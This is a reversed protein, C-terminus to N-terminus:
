LIMERKGEVVEENILNVGRKTLHQHTKCVEKAIKARGKARRGLRSGLQGLPLVPVALLLSKESNRTLPSTSKSTPTGTESLTESPPPTHISQLLVLPPIDM